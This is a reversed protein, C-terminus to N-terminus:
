EFGCADVIEDRVRVRYKVAIRPRSIANVSRYNTLISRCNKGAVDLRALLDQGQPAGQKAILLSWTSYGESAAIRDLAESLRIQEARRLKRAKSKLAPISASLSM